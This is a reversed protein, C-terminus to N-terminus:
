NLDTKAIIMKAINTWIGLIMEKQQAMEPKYYSADPLITRPGQIYFCHQQTNKMDTDVSGLLPLPIKNLMLNKYHKNLSDIDKLEDLQKLINLAPQIGDKEKKEVNQVIKFLTCANKLYDNPYSEKESMEKFEDIMIKEVEKALINFGGTAPQDDPIVLQDLKEQNVYTYLDDQVRPKSM